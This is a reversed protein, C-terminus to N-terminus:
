QEDQLEKHVKVINLAKKIDEMCDYTLGQKKEVLYQDGVKGLIEPHYTIIAPYRIRRNSFSSPISFDLVMGRNNAVKGSANIVYKAATSGLVIVILPDVAYILSHVRKICSDAQNKTVAVGDIIPCAVLAAFFIKKSLYERVEEFYREDNYDRIKDMELDEEYWVQELINMLLRGNTDSLLGGNRFDEQSPADTIIMIDASSSGFSGLTDKNPRNESLSCRNCGIYDYYINMVGELGTTVKNM